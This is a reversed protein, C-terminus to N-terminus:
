ENVYVKMDSRQGFEAMCPMQLRLAAWKPNPKIMHVSEDRDVTSPYHVVNDDRAQMAAYVIEDEPHSKNRLDLSKWAPLRERSM